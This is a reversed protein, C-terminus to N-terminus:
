GTATLPKKLKKKSLLFGVKVPMATEDTYINLFATVAGTEFKTCNALIHEFVGYGRLVEERGLTYVKM